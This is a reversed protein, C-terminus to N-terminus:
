TLSSTVQLLNRTGLGSHRTGLESHRTVLELEPGLNQTRCMPFMGYYQHANGQYFKGRKKGTCVRLTATNQLQAPPKIHRVFRKKVSLM